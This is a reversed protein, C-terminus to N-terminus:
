GDCYMRAYEPNLYGIARVKHCMTNQVVTAVMMTLTTPAVLDSFMGRFSYTLLTTGMPASYAADSQSDFEAYRWRETDNM